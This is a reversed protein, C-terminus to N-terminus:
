DPWPESQALLGRLEEDSLRLLQQEAEYRSNADLVWSRLTGGGRPAFLLREVGYSEEQVAADWLQGSADQFTRM